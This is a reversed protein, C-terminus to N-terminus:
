VRGFRACLCVAGVAEFVCWGALAVGRQVTADVM